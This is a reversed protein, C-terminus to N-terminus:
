CFNFGSADLLVGMSFRGYLDYIDMFLYGEKVKKKRSVTEVM